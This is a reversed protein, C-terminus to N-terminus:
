GRQAPSKSYNKGGLGPSGSTQIPVRGQGQTGCNGYNDAGLGPGSTRNRPGTPEAYARVDRKNGTTPGVTGAMTKGGQSKSSPFNDFIDGKM